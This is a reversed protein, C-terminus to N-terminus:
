VWIISAFIFCDGMVSEVKSSEVQVGRELKAVIWSSTPMGSLPVMKWVRQVCMGMYVSREVCRWKREWFYSNTGTNCCVGCDLSGCHM